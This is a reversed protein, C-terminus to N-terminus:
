IPSNFPYEEPALWGHQIADCFLTRLYSFQFLPKGNARSNSQSLRDCFLTRLYSFQFNFDAWDLAIQDNLDCFLTRLYSFQFNTLLELM